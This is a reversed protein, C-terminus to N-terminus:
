SSTHSAARITHRYQPHFTLKRQTFVLIFYMIISEVVCMHALVRLLSIVFPLASRASGYNKILSRIDAVTSLSVNFVDSLREQAVSHSDDCVSTPSESSSLESRLPFTRNSAPPYPGTSCWSPLPFNCTQYVNSIELPWSSCQEISTFSHVKVVLASTTTM